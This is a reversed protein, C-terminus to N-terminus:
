VKTYNSLIARILKFEDDRAAELESAAAQFKIFVERHMTTSFIEGSKYEKTAGALNRL